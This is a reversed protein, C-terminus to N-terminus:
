RLAYMKGSYWKKVIELAPKNQVTFSTNHEDIHHGFWKWSFGGAVWSENWFAQFLAEYLNSQAENNPKIKEGKDHTWPRRGAYPINRYGFESLLIQKEYKQSVRKLNKAISKWKKRTRKVQPTKSKSVPFYMDVGVYDLDHWFSIKEYEDWNASYTVEGDYISRVKRILATWFAPRHHSFTRLETGISFLEVGADAAIKAVQLIYAEYESELIRWDAETRAKLDGRWEAGDTKDAPTPAGLEIHPKIFVRLGAQKAMAISQTSAELTNGWYSTQEDPLIQLTARDLTAVPIIAIWNANTTKLDEFMEATLYPTGPANFSMGNIKQGYSIGYCSLLILLISSVVSIYSIIYKILNM